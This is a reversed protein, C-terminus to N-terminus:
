AEVTLMKFDRAVVDKITKAIQHYADARGASRRWVLGISRTIARRKIPRVVVESKPGIESQAYLAPVFTVGMGMGVMIRLADLSTGEYDRLLKAGFEECLGTIQDHLHYLPTLSLVQLGELHESDIIEQTALPHDAPLALYLPERFLRQTELEAGMVPLQALIVDHEGRSLEFELERPAGERVYLKLDPNERHLPTVIHPLLYPGLTPKVGLRITGVLGSQAGAAFDNIGQVEDIVRRAREVVERGAPTLSVGSRNREILQVGLAGEINQIQASLSPQSIGAREAARRFHLAESLAILYRLQRLTLDSTIM